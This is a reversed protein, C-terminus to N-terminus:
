INRHLVAGGYRVSETGYKKRLEDLATQLAAIDKLSDPEEFLSIQRNGKHRFDSLILGAQTYVMTRTTPAYCKDRSAKAFHSAADRRVSPIIEEFAEKVFPLLLIEESIHRGISREASAGSKYDAGRVWIGIRACELGHRRLKSSCRQLHTMVQSYLFTADSTGRFSRCRSISKPPGPDTIIAYVPEGQIEKQLDIGIKGLSNEIMFPDAHYFDLATYLGSRFLM